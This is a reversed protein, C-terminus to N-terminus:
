SIGLFTNFTLVLQQCETHNRISLFWLRSDHRTQKTTNTPFGISWELPQNTLERVQFIHGLFCRRKPARTASWHLFTSAKTGSRRDYSSELVNVLTESLQATRLFLTRQCANRLTVCGPGKLSAPTNRNGVRGVWVPNEEFFGRNRFRLTRKCVKQYGAEKWCFFSLCGLCNKASQSM